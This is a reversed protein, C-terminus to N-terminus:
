PVYYQLLLYRADHILSLTSLASDLLSELRHHNATLNDTSFTDSMPTAHLPSHLAPPALSDLPAAHDHHNCRSFM